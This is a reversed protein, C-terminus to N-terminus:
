RALSTLVGTGHPSRARIPVHWPARGLKHLLHARQQPSRGEPRRLQGPALGQRLAALRTGRCVAMVVRVPRLFGNRVAWWQGEGTLGGGTVLGHLHPPWVLTQSWTHRAAILGPGAGLYPADGLRDDVTEHVTACVLTTLARVHALWWGRLEAPM